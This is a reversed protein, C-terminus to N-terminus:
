MGKHYYVKTGCDWIRDFGNAVMNDYETLTPDFTNLREKLKHKMFVSRHLLKDTPDNLEVYFYSSMSDMKHKFGCQEYVNGESFRRNAYSVLSGPNERMFHKMIKSFGGVVTVGMRNTMRLLEFDMENNYRPSGFTSASMLYHSKVDVLGYCHAFGVHGQLHNEEFFKRVKKKDEIRVIKCKRAYLRRSKGLKNLIISKWIPKVRPDKWENSFITILNIGLKECEEITRTPVHRNRGSQECSSHLDVYSIAIAKNHEGINKIGIDLKISKGTKDFIVNEIDTEIDDADHNEKIFELLTTLDDSNAKKL